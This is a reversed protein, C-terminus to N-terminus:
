AAKREHPFNLQAFEGHLEIAKADYARAAADKQDRPFYGLHYRVGNSNIYVQWANGRVSWAVGKFGSTNNKKRKVNAQNQGGTWLRLNELRNDLGDTSKHDVHLKGTPDFIFQHMMMTVKKGDVVASRM